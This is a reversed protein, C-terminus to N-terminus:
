VRCAGEIGRRKLFRRDDGHIADAFPGGGGDPAAPAFIDLDQLLKLKGM